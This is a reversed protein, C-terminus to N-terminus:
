AAHNKEKGDKIRLVMREVPWEFNIQDKDALFFYGRKRGIRIWAPDAGVMRLWKVMVKLSAMIDSYFHWGHPTKQWVGFKWQLLNRFKPEGDFDAILYHMGPRGPVRSTTGIAFRWKNKQTKM